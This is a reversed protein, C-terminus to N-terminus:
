NASIKTQDIKSSLRFSRSYHGINYETYIPQLEEYKGFDIRGNVRLVGDEIAVDINSKQVGPMDMVVNLADQTEYIDTTPLFM